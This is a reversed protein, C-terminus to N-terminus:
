TTLASRVARVYYSHIAYNFNVTPYYGIVFGIGWPANTFKEYDSTWIWSQKSDFVAEINLDGNKSIPEVLSMAEELTPLRWDDYGAFQAKNLDRLYRRTQNFPMVNESGSRQWMLATTHDNILTERNQEIVEYQHQLGKGLRNRQSDYFDWKEIMTLIDDDTLARQKFRLKVRKILGLSDMGKYLSKLLRNWGDERFYDVWQHPSLSEPVECEELRLPIIYIDKELRERLVDLAISIERQLFGRKDKSNKSLCAVFFECKPITDQIILRWREGGVLDVKDMWPKFGSNQLNRYLEKVQDEDERAYCLFIQTIHNMRFSM